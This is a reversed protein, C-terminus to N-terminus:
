IHSNKESKYNINRRCKGGESVKYDYMLESFHSAEAQAKFQQLHWSDM